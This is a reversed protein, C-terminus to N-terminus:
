SEGLKFKAMPTYTLIGNIRSSEMVCIENIDFTHTPFEIEKGACTIVAQRAITIHPKYEAFDTEIGVRKLNKIIKDHLELLEESETINFYVTHFNKKRFSSVGDITVKFKKIVKATEGTAVIIQNVKQRDAEGIICIKM